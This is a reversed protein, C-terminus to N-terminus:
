TTQLSSLQGNEHQKERYETPGDEGDLLCVCM